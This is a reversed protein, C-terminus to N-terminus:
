KTNAHGLRFRVGLFIQQGGVRIDQSLGTLPERDITVTGISARLGGTVAIARTMAFAVDSGVHGGLTRGGVNQTTQGTITVVNADSAATAAQSYRIGSVMDASYAIISPGGSLRWETRGTRLVTLTMSLHTARETRRFPASQGVGTAPVDLYYPHPVTAELTSVDRYSARTFAVGLSVRRTLAIGGGIDVIPFVRGGSPRPDTARFTAVESDQLFACGYTRERANSTASGILSVDIFFRAGESKPQAPIQAAVPRSVLILVIGLLHRM